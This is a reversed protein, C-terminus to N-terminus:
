AVQQRRSLRLQAPVQLRRRLHVDRRLLLGLRDARLPVPDSLCMEISRGDREGM